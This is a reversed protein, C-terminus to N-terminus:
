WQANGGAIERGARVERQAQKQVEEGVLRLSRLLAPWDELNSAFIHVLTRQTWQPVLVNLQDPAV